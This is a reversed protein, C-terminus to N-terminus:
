AEAGLEAQVSKRLQDVTGAKWDMAIIDGYCPVWRYPRPIFVRQIVQNETLRIVVGRARWAVLEPDRALLQLTNPLDM